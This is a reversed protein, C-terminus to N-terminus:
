HCECANGDSNQAHKVCRAALEDDSARMTMNKDGRRLARYNMRNAMVLSTSVLWAALGADLIPV